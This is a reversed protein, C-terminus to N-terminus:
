GAHHIGDPCLADPTLAIVERRALGFHDSQGGVPESSDVLREIGTVFGHAAAHVHGPVAGHALDVHVMGEHLVALDVGRFGLHEQVLHFVVPVKAEGADAVVGNVVVLVRGGIVVARREHAMGEVSGHHAM